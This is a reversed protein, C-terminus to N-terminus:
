LPARMAKLPRSSSVAFFCGFGSSITNNGILLIVLRNMGFTNPMVFVLKVLVIGVRGM